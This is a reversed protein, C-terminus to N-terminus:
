DEFVHRYPGALANEQINQAQKFDRLEATAFLQDISHESLGLIARGFDERDVGTKNFHQCLLEFEDKTMRKDHSHRVNLLEHIQLKDKMRMRRFEKRFAKRGKPRGDHLEADDDESYYADATERQNERIEWDRISAFTSPQELFAVPDFGPADMVEL